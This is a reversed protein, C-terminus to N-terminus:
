IAQDILRNAIQKAIRAQDPSQSVHVVTCAGRFILYLQDALDEPERLNAEKALQAFYARLQNACQNAIERVLSEKDSYEAIANTCLCGFYVDKDFHREIISFIGRLRENATDGSAEVDKM